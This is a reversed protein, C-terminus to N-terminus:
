QTNNEFLKLKSVTFLDSKRANKSKKKICHFCALKWGGFEVTEFSYGTPFFDHFQFNLLNEALFLIEM